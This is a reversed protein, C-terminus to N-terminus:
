MNAKKAKEYNTASTQITDASKELARKLNEFDKAFSNIKSIYKEGDETTWSSKLNNIATSMAQYASWYSKASSRIGEAAAAMKGPDYTFNSVAM